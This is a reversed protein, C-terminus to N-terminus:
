YTNNIPNPNANPKRYPMANPKYMFQPAPYKHSTPNTYGYYQNTPNMSPYSNSNAQNTHQFLNHNPYNAHYPYFNPNFFTYENHPTPNPTPNPYSLPNPDFSSYAPSISRLSDLNGNCAGLSSNTPGVSIDCNCNGVHTISIMPRNNGSTAGQFPDFELDPMDSDWFDFGELLPSGNAQGRLGEITWYHEFSFVFDVL